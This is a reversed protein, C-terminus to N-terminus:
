RKNHDELWKPFELFPNHEKDELYKSYIKM